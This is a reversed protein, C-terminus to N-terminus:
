ILTKRGRVDGKYGRIKRVYMRREILHKNCFRVSVDLSEECKVCKGVAVKKVACQKQSKNSLNNIMIRHIECHISKECKPKGCIPCNGLKKQKKQWLRQRSVM